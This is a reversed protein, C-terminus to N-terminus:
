WQERWVPDHETFLVDIRDLNSVVKFSGRPLATSLSGKVLVQLPQQAAPCDVFQVQVRPPTPLSALFRGLTSVARKARGEPVQELVLRLPVGVAPDLVLRAGPPLQLAAAQGTVRDRFGAPAGAQAALRPAHGRSRSPAAVGGAGSLSRFRRALALGACVVGALGAVAALPLPLADNHEVATLALPSRRDVQVLYYLAGSLAFFFLALRAM